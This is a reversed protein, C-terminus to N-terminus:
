GCVFCDPFVPDQFYRAGGAAARAEAMSVPGPIELAAPGPWSAAEAILTGDHVVRLAGEDGPEVTMPTALPPPKRLTVTAPGDLYAAVRGCAYGGNGSAAPGRFRPAITLQPIGTLPGRQAAGAPAAPNMAPPM